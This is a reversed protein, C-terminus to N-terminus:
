VGARGHPRGRGFDASMPGLVAMRRRAAPPEAPRRESRMRATGGVPMRRKKSIAAAISSTIESPMPSGSKTEGAGTTSAATADSSAPFVPYVSIPLADHLSLTYLEPPAAHNLYLPYHLPSPDRAAPPCSTRVI